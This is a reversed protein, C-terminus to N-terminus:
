YFTVDLRQIKYLLITGNEKCFEYAQLTSHTSYSDMVLLVPDELSAKVFLQFHKLYQVFLDETIWGKDSCSYLAGPPGGKQFQPNM